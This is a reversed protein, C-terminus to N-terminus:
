KAVKKGKKCYQYKQAKYKSDRKVGFEAINYSTGTIGCNTCCYTDLGEENCVLCSKQWNHPMLDSELIEFGLYTRPKEHPRLTNNYREIIEKGYTEPDVDKIYEEWWFASPNDEHCIKLKFKMIIM